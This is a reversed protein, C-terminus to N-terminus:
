LQKLTEVIQNKNAELEEKDVTVQSNPYEIMLDITPHKYRGLDLKPDYEGFEELAKNVEKDSLVEEDKIEVDLEVEEHATKYAENKETLEAPKEEFDSDSIVVPEEHKPSVSTETLSEQPTEDLITDINDEHPLNEKEKKKFFNQIKEPTWKYYIGLIYAHLFGSNFEYGYYRNTSNAM